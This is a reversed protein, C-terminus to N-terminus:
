TCGVSDDEDGRFSPFFPSREYSEVSAVSKRLRSLQRHHAIGKFIGGHQVFYSCPCVGVLLEGFELIAGIRPPIWVRVPVFFDYLVHRRHVTGIDPDVTTGLLHFIVEVKRGVSLIADVLMGCVTVVLEADPGVQIELEVVVDAQSIAHGSTVFVSLVRGLRCTGDERGKAAALRSERSVPRGPLEPWVDFAAIVRGCCGRIGCSVVALLIVIDHIVGGQGDLDRPDFSQFDIESSRVVLM